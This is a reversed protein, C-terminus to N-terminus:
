GLVQKVMSRVRNGDATGKVLPMVKGMVKGFENPTAQLETVVQQVLQRLEEDSTQRPLYNELIAIEEEAQKVLDERAGKKFEEIANRRQKVERQIITIIEDEDLEHRKDISENKIAALLLRLTSLRLKEGAKLAQKMQSQLEALM